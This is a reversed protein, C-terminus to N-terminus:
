RRVSPSASHLSPILSATSSNRKCQSHADNNQGKRVCAPKQESREAYRCCGRNHNYNPTNNTALFDPTKNLPESHTSNQGPDTLSGSQRICLCRGSTQIPTVASRGLWPLWLAYLSSWALLHQLWEASLSMHDREILLAKGVVGAIIM